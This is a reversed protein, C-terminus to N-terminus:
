VSIISPVSAAVRNVSAIFFRISHYAQLHLQESRCGKGVAGVMTRRVWSGVNSSNSLKGDSGVIECSRIRKGLLLLFLHSVNSIDELGTIDNGMRANVQDSVIGIVSLCM